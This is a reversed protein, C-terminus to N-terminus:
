RLALTLIQKDIMDLRENGKNRVYRMTDRKNRQRGVGKETKQKSKYTTFPQDGRGYKRSYSTDRSMEITTHYYGQM